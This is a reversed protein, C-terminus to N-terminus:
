TSPNRPSVHTNLVFGDGSIEASFVATCQTRTIDKVFTLYYDNNAPNSSNSPPHLTAIVQPDYRLSDSIDGDAFYSITIETSGSPVSTSLYKGADKLGTYPVGTLGAGDGGVVGSLIPAGETTIKLIEQSEQGEGSIQFSFGSTTARISAGENVFYISEGHMYLDRFPKEPSGLDYVGSLSPIINGDIHVDGSINLKNNLSISNNATDVKILDKDNKDRLLFAHEDIPMGSLIFNSDNGLVLNKDTIDLKTGSPYYFFSSSGSVYGVRNYLFSGDEGPAITLTGPIGQVGLFGVNINQEQVTKSVATNVGSNTVVVTNANTPSKVQTSAAGSVVVNIKDPELSM